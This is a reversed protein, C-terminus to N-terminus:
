REGLEAEPLTHNDTTSILGIHQWGQGRVNNLMSRFAEARMELADQSITSRQSDQLYEEEPTMDGMPDEPDERPRKRSSVGEVISCEITSYGQNLNISENLSVESTWGTVELPQASSATVAATPNQHLAMPAEILAGTSSSTLQSDLDNQMAPLTAAFSEMLVDHRFVTDSSHPGFLKQISIGNKAWEQPSVTCPWVDKPKFADILHCLEPYSSHRSYPFTVVRPLSEPAIATEENCRQEERGLQSKKVIAQIATALTAENQDGFLAMELDLSINHGSTVSNLLFHRTNEKL